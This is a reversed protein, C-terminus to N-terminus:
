RPAVEDRGIRQALGLGASVALVIQFVPNILANDFFAQLIAIMLLSATAVAFSSDRGRRMAGLLLSVFLQASLVVVLILAVLGWEITFLTASSLPAIPANGFEQYVVSLSHFTGAGHGLTPTAAVMQDIARTSPGGWHVAFGTLGAGTHFHLLSMVCAGAVFLAILSLAPWARINFRRALLVLLMTAVGIGIAVISAAPASKILATGAITVAMICMVYRSFVQLRPPSSRSGAARESTLKAYAIAFIVACSAIAVFAPAAAAPVLWALHLKDSLMTELSMVTTVALLMYLIAEAKRRDRAITASAIVFSLLGIYYVFIWFTRVPEISVHGSPRQQLGEAAISWIPNAVASFSIPLVQLLMWACPFLLALRAPRLIQTGAKLSSGPGFCIAALSLTGAFLTTDAATDLPLVALGPLAALAVM